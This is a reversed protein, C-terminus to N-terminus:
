FDHVGGMGNSSQHFVVEPPFRVERVDPLDCDRKGRMWDQSPKRVHFLEKTKAVRRSRSDSGEQTAQSSRVDLFPISLNFRNQLTKRDDARALFPLESLTRSNVSDGEGTTRDKHNVQTNTCSEYFFM